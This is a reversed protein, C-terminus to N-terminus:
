YQWRDLYHLFLKATNYADDIARHHSGEFEIETYELAKILGVEKPLRHLLAYQSKLNIFGPLFRDDVDHRLCDAHILEM